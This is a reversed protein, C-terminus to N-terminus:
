KGCRSCVYYVGMVEWMQKLCLLSRDSGVDAEFM